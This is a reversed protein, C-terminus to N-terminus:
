DVELKDQVAFKVEMMNIDLKLEKERRRHKAIAGADRKTKLKNCQICLTQVNDIDFEAGGVAIPIIHDGILNSTDAIEKDGYKLAYRKGCHKCTYNDRKFAKAKVVSWDQIASDENYFKNSCEKSCCVYKTTRTWQSKHKGCAPCEHNQIRVEALNSYNRKWGERKKVM